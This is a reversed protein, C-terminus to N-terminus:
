AEEKWGDKELHCERILRNAEDKGLRNAAQKLISAVINTWYTGGHRKVTTIQTKAEEFSILSPDEHSRVM